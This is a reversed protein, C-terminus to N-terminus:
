QIQNRGSNFAMLFDDESTGSKLSVKFSFMVITNIYVQCPRGHLNEDMSMYTRATSLSIMNEFNAINGFM